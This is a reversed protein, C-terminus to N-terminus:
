QPVARLIERVGKPTRGKLYYWDTFSDGTRKNYVWVDWSPHVRLKKFLSWSYWWTIHIEHLDNNHHEDILWTEHIDVSVTEGAYEFGHITRHSTETGQHNM